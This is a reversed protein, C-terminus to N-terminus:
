KKFRRTVRYDRDVSELAARLLARLGDEAATTNEDLERYFIEFFAGHPVPAVSSVIYSAVFILVAVWWQGNILLAVLAVWKGIIFGWAIRYYSPMIFFRASHPLDRARCVELASRQMFFFYLEGLTALIALIAWISM